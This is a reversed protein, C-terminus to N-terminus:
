KSECIIMTSKEKIVIRFRLGEEVKCPFMWSPLTEEHTHGDKAVLEVSVARGKVQDVTGIMITACILSIIKVM